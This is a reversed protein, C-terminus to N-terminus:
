NAFVSPIHNGNEKYTNKRATAMKKFMPVGIDIFDWIEPKKEKKEEDKREVRAIAQILNGEFKKPTVFFLINLRNISIGESFLKFTAFLVDIKGERTREMIDERIRPKMKGAFLESNGGIKEQLHQLHSIRDSLVIITNNKTRKEKIKEIILENRKKNEVMVNIVSQYNLTGDYNLCTSPIDRMSFDTKMFNISAKVINSDNKIECIKEGLLATIGFDYKDSRYCTATLGIKYRANISGIIKEFMKTKKNSYSTSSYHHCEDCIILDFKNKIDPLFKELSQITSFTVDGVEMKGDTIFGTDYNFYKLLRNHAQKILDKTHAIWLTKVKLENILAIAVETKGSGATSVLLGNKKKMLKKLAEKQYDFLELTEKKDRTEEEKIKEIKKHKYKIKEGELFPKLLHLVGYPFSYSNDKKNIKFYKLKEPVNWNKFGLAKNKDYTPNRFTLKNECFRQIEPTINKITIENDIIIEM